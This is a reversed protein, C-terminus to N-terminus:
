NLVMPTPSLAFTSCSTQPDGGNPICNGTQNGNNGNGQNGQGARVAGSGKGQSFPYTSYWSDFVCTSSVGANNNAGKSTSTPKAPSSTAKAFAPLFFFTPRSHHLRVLTSSSKQNPPRGPIAHVTPSSLAIALFILVIAAKSFM